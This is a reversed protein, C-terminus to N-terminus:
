DKLQIKIIFLLAIFLLFGILIFTSGKYYKKHLKLDKRYSYIMLIIFAIMFFGAFIWQAKSFM